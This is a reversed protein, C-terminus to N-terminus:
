GWGDHNRNTDLIFPHNRAWHIVTCVTNREWSQAFFDGYIGLQYGRDMIDVTDRSDFIAQRFSWKTQHHEWHVLGGSLTPIDGGTQHCWLTFGM